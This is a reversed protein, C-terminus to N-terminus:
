PVCVLERKTQGIARRLFLAAHRIDKENQQEEELLASYTQLCDIGGLLQDNV